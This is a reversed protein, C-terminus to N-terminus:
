FIFPPQFRYKCPFHPFITDKWYIDTCCSPTGGKSDWSHLIYQSYIYFEQSFHFHNRSLKNSCFVEACYYIMSLDIWQFDSICVKTFFSLTCGLELDRFPKDTRKNMQGGGYFWTSYISPFSYSVLVFKRIYETCIKTSLCRAAFNRVRWSM